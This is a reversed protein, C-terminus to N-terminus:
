VPECGPGRGPDAQALGQRESHCGPPRPGRRVAGTRARPGSLRGGQRTRQRSGDAAPRRARLAQHGQAHAAVRAGGGALRPLPDRCTGRGAAPILRHQTTGHPSLPARPRRSPPRALTRPSGAVGLGDADSLRGRLLGTVVIVSRLGPRTVARLDAASALVRGAGHWQGLPHRPGSVGGGLGGASIPPQATGQVPMAHGRPTDRGDRGARRV